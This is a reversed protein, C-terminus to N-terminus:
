FATVYRAHNLEAESCCLGIHYPEAYTASVFLYFYIVNFESLCAMVWEPSVGNDVSIAVAKEPRM